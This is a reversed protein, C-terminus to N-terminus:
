RPRTPSMRNLMDRRAKDEPSEVERELALRVALPDYVRELLAPSDGLRALTKGEATSWRIDSPDHGSVRGDPTACVVGGDALPLLTLRLIAENDVVHM